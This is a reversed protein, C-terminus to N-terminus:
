ISITFDIFLKQLCKFYMTFVVEVQLSCTYYKMRSRGGRDISQDSILIALISLVRERERERKM